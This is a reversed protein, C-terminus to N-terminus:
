RPKPDFKETWRIRGTMQMVVFLTLISGITIALGTFGKLFFACSFLILYIFQITGAEVAAFRLGAVLRLYSVVLFISVASCIAFAAYISIHDVLYALLLHFSFFAAALFFYNMPHLDIDKLTTIIFMLFFFFFLSVPAFYSIQGALPGPQIKEPLEMGVEFGSLMNKYAWTLDWGDPTERKESPSLTNSPFNIAKFNTTMKLQFDRVQAVEGGFSYTWTDLGQSRYSVTVLVAKGKAVRATGETSTGKPVVALPVGDVSFVLDDYIAKAAPLPLTFRVVQDQESNNRFTYEGVLAVKYTRYWLLGKQRPELNIAVNIRSSEVPLFTASIEKRTRTIQKGDETVQETKDLAVEYSAAPPMQNQAAGWNSVVTERLGSDFSYTRSFITTGLIIWAASTCLFIAILAVIRKIM